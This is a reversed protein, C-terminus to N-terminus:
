FSWNLNFGTVTSPTKFGDPKSIPKGVFVDFNLHKYQGRWGVAGGALHTGLLLSSSPGGVEGYDLGLYLETGSGGLAVGLDNRILWGRDASLLSEGDFGRVTYRGGIAFRDQPVLPTRNWQARWSGGYRLSQGALAFPLNLQTEATIIEPRSTGEGFVQEPAPLADQAGTGRRYAASLDLTASGLFERHAAGLEWGAMRRRQIVVEADNIFNNSTRAWGRLSLSTKRVADRYVLRSLKIEQNRSEGSYRYTQNIGAVSQRYRNQSATLGLLWYGYPMSYHVTYGQTGKEGQNGGGLDHNFSVYFLDNLTLGNDSALTIGGQYKGTAKSGADDASLALRFPFAQQWRLVLDSEGPQEGPTIQIDTDTTPLRKLNELGQEIDRLNLLDGPRAPIANRWSARADSGEAFRIARIRGPVLTLTLTGSKLDQPQALVRTTIYGKQIVANQVRKMAIGIGRAGLCRGTAPDGPRSAAALAWQFRASEDGSLAIRDITFCPAEDDPIRALATDIEPRKLRVDTKKEQAERLAREREQQRQAEQGAVDAVSPTQAWASQMGPLVPLVLLLSTALIQRVTFPACDLARIARRPLRSVPIAAPTSHPPANM